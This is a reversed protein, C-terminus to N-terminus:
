IVRSMDIMPKMKELWTHYVDVNLEEVPIWKSLVEILNGNLIDELYIVNISNDHIFPRSKAFNEHIIDLRNDVWKMLSKDKTTILIHVYDDTLLHKNIKYGYYYHSPIYKYKKKCSNLYNIYDEMVFNDKVLKKRDDITNILHIRGLPEYIYGNKDITATVVHGCYGPRYVIIFM